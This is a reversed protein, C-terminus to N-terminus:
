PPTAISGVLADQKEIKGDRFKIQVEHLQIRGLAKMRDRNRAPTIDLLWKLVKDAAIQKKEPPLDAKRVGAVTKKVASLERDYAKKLDSISRGFIPSVPAIEGKGDKLYVYYTQPEFTSYMPFNSFPYFEGPKETRCTLVPLIVAMLLVMIWHLPQQKFFSM